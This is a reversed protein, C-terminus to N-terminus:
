PLYVVAPLMLTVGTPLARIGDTNIRESEDKMGKGHQHERSAVFEVHTRDM